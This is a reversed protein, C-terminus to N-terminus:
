IKVHNKFCFRDSQFINLSKSWDKDQKYAGLGELINLGVVMLGIVVKAGLEVLSGMDRISRLQTRGTADIDRLIPIDCLM